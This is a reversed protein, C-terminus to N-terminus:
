AKESFYEQIMEDLIMMDEFSTIRKSLEMITSKAKKVEEKDLSNQIIYEADAIRKALNKIEKKNM